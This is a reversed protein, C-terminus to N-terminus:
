FIGFKKKKAQRPGVVEDLQKLLDTSTQQSQVAEEQELATAYSRKLKMSADRVNVTLARVHDAAMNLDKKIATMRHQENQLILIAQEMQLEPLELLRSQLEARKEFPLSLISDCTTFLVYLTKQLQQKDM